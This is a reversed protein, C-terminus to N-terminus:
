HVSPKIAAELAAVEVEIALHDGRQISRVIFEAAARVAGLQGPELAAQGALEKIAIIMAIIRAREIIEARPSPESM